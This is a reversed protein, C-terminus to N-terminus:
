SVARRADELTFTLYATRRADLHGDASMEDGLYFRYEVTGTEQNYLSHWLTRVQSGATSGVEQPRRGTADASMVQYLRPWSAEAHLEKLDDTTFPRGQARQAGVLDALTRYRWFINTEMTLAAEFVPDGPPHRHLEFNSVIQPQGAGEIVYQANRGPSHEYVFSRGSRDAVLCIAPIFAYYERMTLLTERAEDVTACTDLLLRLAQGGHVGVAHIPYPEFTPGMLALAENDALVAVVLGASNMGDYTGSLLDFAQLAISAYGGDYPYWEMIYPERFPSRHQAADADAPPRPVHLVDALSGAPFDLNRSLYGHGTATFAPPMYVASCGPAFFPLGLNYGLGASLDFGDDELDIGFAAAVGRVREWQIPDHRQTYQRQARAMLPDARYLDASQGYRDRAVVGVRRGIEVNTGRIRLRRVTMFDEPGGCVVREDSGMAGAPDRRRTTLMDM